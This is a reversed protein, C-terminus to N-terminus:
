ARGRIRVVAPHRQEKCEIFSTWGLHTGDARRLNFPPVDQERLGLELTYAPVDRALFDMLQRLRPFQEGSPLFERFRAQPLDPIVLTFHSARTRARDGVVFSTGLVGNAQGLQLRQPGPINVSRVEFERIYVGSLDFCHAVSGAVVSPSRSRSAILGAFSLLRGWPLPTAGRLDNNNLGILSFVYRSFHDRAEPQFRVYYRYKRWSQHLLTLLRHNFFDLFPSRIGRGQAEEYAVRDLYYAPLPSDAGQLGLFHTQVRYRVNDEDDDATSPLREALSLDSAAFGLAASSQLRIRRRSARSLPQAELDDGHLAYVHELLRHFSYNRADALLVDALDRTTQRNVTAM